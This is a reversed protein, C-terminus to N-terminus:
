RTRKGTTWRDDLARIADLAGQLDEHPVDACDGEGEESALAATIAAIAAERRRKTFRPRYTRPPKKV